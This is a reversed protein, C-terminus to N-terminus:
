GVVVLLRHCFPCEGVASGHKLRAVQGETLEVCCASCHSGELRAAGLGGKTERAKEYRSRVSESLSELLNERLQQTALQEKQLAASDAQYSALLEADQRLLGELASAAQAEVTAIREAREMQKLTDFEIKELRKAFGEIEQALSVVEKYNSTEDVKAQAGATKERLTVDEDALAKLTRDCEKRMTAVQEAKAEVEARKARLELLKKRQPLGDLQKKIRLLAFDAQTLALLTKADRVDGADRQSGAGRQDGAEDASKTDRIM